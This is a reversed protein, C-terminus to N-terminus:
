LHQVPICNYYYYFSSIRPLALCYGALSVARVVGRVLLLISTGAAQTINNAVLGNLKTWVAPTNRTCLANKTGPSESRRSKDKVNWSTRAFSWVRRGHSNPAFREATGAMWQCIRTGLISRTQGIEGM